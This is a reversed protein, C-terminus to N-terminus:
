KIDSLSGDKEIVFTVLVRKGIFDPHSQLNDTIFKQFKENGGIFQPDIDSVTGFVKDSSTTDNSIEVKSKDAPISTAQAMAAQHLGAFGLAVMTASFWKKMKPQKPASTMRDADYMGCLGKSSKLFANRIQQEDMGRFDHVMKHCGDCYWGGNCPKLEDFAKPCRFNLRINQYPQM